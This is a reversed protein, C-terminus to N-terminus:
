IPDTPHGALHPVVTVDKGVRCSLAPRNEGPFSLLAGGLQGQREWLLRWLAWPQQSVERGQGAGQREGLSNKLLDKLM